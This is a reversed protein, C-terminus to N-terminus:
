SARLDRIFLMTPAYSVFDKSASGVLKFNQSYLSKLRHTPQTTGIIHHCQKEIACQERAADLLTSLGRGRFELDVVLRNIFAAPWRVGDLLGELSPADPLDDGKEHVCLRSAAIIRGGEEIIFHEAHEDHPDLWCDGCDAAYSPREGDAEWARIRLRGIEQLLDDTLTGDAFSLREVRICEGSQVTMGREEGGRHAAARPGM